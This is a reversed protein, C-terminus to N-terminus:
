TLVVPLLLVSNNTLLMFQQWLLVVFLVVVVDDFINNNKPWKFKKKSKSGLIFPEAIGSRVAVRDFRCLLMAAACDAYITSVNQGRSCRERCKM